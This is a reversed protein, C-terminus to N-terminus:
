SCSTMQDTTAVIAGGTAIPALAAVPDRLDAAWREAGTAPELSVLRGPQEADFQGTTAGIEEALLLSGGIPAIVTSTGPRSQEWRVAGTPADLATVTSTPELGDPTAIAITEDDAAISFIRSAVDYRWSSTGTALDYVEVWEAVAPDVAPLVLREGSQVVNEYTFIPPTATWRVSGDESSLGVLQVADPPPVLTLDPGQTGVTPVAVVGGGVFTPGALAVGSRVTWACV